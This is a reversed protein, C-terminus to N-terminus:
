KNKQDTPATNNPATNGPANVQSPPKAPTPPTASYAAIAAFFISAILASLGPGAKVLSDALKSLAEVLKAASDLSIDAGRKLAADAPARVVFSAILSVLYYLVFVVFAAISLNLCCQAVMDSM